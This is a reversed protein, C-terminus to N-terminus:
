QKQLTIGMIGVVTENARARFDVSVITKEPDCEIPLVNVRANKGIWFAEGERHRLPFRQNINDYRDGERMDCVNLFNVPPIIDKEISIGDSYRVTLTAAPVLTQMQNTIGGFLLWLTSCSDNVPIQIQTPFNDYQSVACINRETFMAFLCAPTCILGQGSKVLMSFDIEPAETLGWFSYCWSTYGNTGMQASCTDTRPSIYKEKYIKRLDGNFYEQLDVYSFYANEPIRPIEKREESVKVRIVEYHTEREEIFTFYGRRAIKGDKLSNQLDKWTEPVKEDLSKEYIRPKRCIQKGSFVANLELDKGCSNELSVVIFGTQYGKEYVFPVEKGNVSVSEAKQLRTDIKIVTKDAMSRLKIKCLNKNRKWELKIAKESLSAHKWEKPFSPTFYLEKGRKGFSIGFMGGYLAMLFCSLISTFDTATSSTGFVMPTWNNLCSDEYASRFLYNAREYLGAHFYAEALRFDEAYNLERTSWTRPVFNSIYTREGGQATKVRELGYETYYLSTIQEEKTLLDSMVPFLVSYLWADEHLLKEGMVDKYFAPHGKELIWLQEHFEKKIREYQVKYKDAESNEGKDRCIEELKRFVNYAFVTEECGKGGNNWVTDTPWTNIYSEYLGSDQPDFCRKQWFAQLPLSDELIKRLKDNNFKNDAYILQDFFISQFNYMNQDRDIRGKGYFCSNGDQICGLHYEESSSPAPKKDESIQFGTYYEGEETVNNEDSLVVGGYITEWGPFPISWAMAGHNYVHDIFTARHAVAAYKVALNLNVDPTQVVFKSLEEKLKNEADAFAKQPSVSPLVCDLAKNEAAIKVYLKESFEIESLFCPFKEKESPLFESLFLSDASIIKGAINQSFAIYARAKEANKESSFILGNNFFCGKNGLCSARDFFVFRNETYYMSDLGWQPRDANEGEYNMAANVVYLTGGGKVCFRMSCGSDDASSVVVAELKRGDPLNFMYRIRNPEFITEYVTNQLWLVEEGNKWAFYVAGFYKQDAVLKLAPVEGCLVFGQKGYFYIPRNFFRQGNKVKLKGSTLRYM